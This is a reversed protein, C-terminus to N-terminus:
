PMQLRNVGAGSSGAPTAFVGATRGVDGANNLGERFKSTSFGQVSGDSLGVNGQKSHNNDQWGISTATWASNTGASIFQAVKTVQNAGTGLNHDGTLFMSPSTESADVGVFYSTYFDNQFGEPAGATALKPGFVSAQALKTGAANHSDGSESPCALIKPTNLENSMVMFMWHVGRGANPPAVNATWATTAALGVAEKAGGSASALGMPYQDSNDLSWQRFALGVQKLNNPCNIKQAKAKAKALAPLLMAALIAIIAIVVLLEILTFAAKRINKMIKQQKTKVKQTFLHRV